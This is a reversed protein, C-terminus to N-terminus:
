KKYAIYNWTGAQFYNGSGTYNGSLTNNAYSLSLGSINSINKWQNVLLPKLYSESKIYRVAVIQATMATGDGRYFVIIDDADFDLPLSFATTTVTFTGSAVKPGSAGRRVLSLESM